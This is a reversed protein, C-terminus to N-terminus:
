ECELATAKKEKLNKVADQLTLIECEFCAIQEDIQEITIKIDITEFYDDGIKKITM